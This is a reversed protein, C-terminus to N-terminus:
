EASSDVKWGLAKEVTDILLNPKSKTFRGDTCLLLDCQRGQKWMSHLLTKKRTMMRRIRTLRSWKTRQDEALGYNGLTADTVHYDACDTFYFGSLATMISTVTDEQDRM